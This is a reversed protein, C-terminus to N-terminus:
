NGMETLGLKGVRKDDKNSGYRRWPCVAVSCPQWLSTDAMVPTAPLWWTRPTLCRSPWNLCQWPGTSSPAVHPWPLSALCSSTSVPSPCWTSPWNVCILTWSALSVCARPWAQFCCTADTLQHKSGLWGWLIIDLSFVSWDTEQYNQVCTVFSCFQHRVVVVRNFYKVCFGAGHMIKLEGGWFFFSLFFGTCEM